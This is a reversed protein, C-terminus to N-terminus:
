SWVAYIFLRRDFCLRGCKWHSPLLLSTSTLPMADTDSLGRVRCWAPSCKAGCNLYLSRHSPTGDQCLTKRALFGCCQNLISIAVNLRHCLSFLRKTSSEYGAIIGQLTEQLASKITKNNSPAIWMFLRGTSNHREQCYHCQKHNANLPHLAPEHFDKESMHKTGIVAPTEKETRAVSCVPDSWIPDMWETPNLAM